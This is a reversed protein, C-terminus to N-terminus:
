GSAFREAVRWFLDQWPYADPLLFRIRRTNRLVVGGVKLLRVRLTACQASALEPGALGLRRLTELLIYGLSALLLRFQNAWWHHCSTRDAFLGLQQEKIRNEMDGRACYVDEYLAQPEGERNTVLFRPNEGKPGHEAKVIVRRPHKWTGAAYAMEGFVRQKESQAAFRAQAEQRWPEAQKMLRSNKALGVLYGVGNRECWGLIRRRCFGSDARFLLTVEPWVARLRQVLCKLIAGAHRAADIKSPRLYAVLLQNGCFVYLPLFCYQDYYGHFFRGEQAGHVPDDTADFDLILRDPPTEFSAIFPELFVEHIVKATLRDMRNELRCLTPSSAGPSVRECSTQLALDHRWTDHDDLDEYGQCLGYVRQRLLHLLSHRCRNPDRPDPLREAVRQLLGIRRDVQRLLLVGADSTVDGGEFKVEVWRCGVPAFLEIQETCDTM